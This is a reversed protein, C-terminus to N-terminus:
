NIKMQNTKFPLSYNIKIIRNNKSNLYTQITTLNIADVM